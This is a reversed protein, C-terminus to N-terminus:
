SVLATHLMYADTFQVMMPEYLPKDGEQHWAMIQVLASVNGM